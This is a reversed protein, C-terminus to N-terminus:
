AGDIFLVPSVGFFRGLKGALAAGIFLRVAKVSVCCSLLLGFLDKRPSALAASLIAGAGAM